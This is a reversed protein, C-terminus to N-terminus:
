GSAWWQRENDFAWLNEGNSALWKLKKGAALQRDSFNKIRKKKKKFNKKTRWIFSVVTTRRTFGM